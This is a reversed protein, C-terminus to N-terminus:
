RFAAFRASLPRARPIWGAKPFRGNAVPSKPSRDGVRRRGSQEWKGSGVEFQGLADALKAKVAM